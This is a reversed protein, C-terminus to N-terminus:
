IARAHRNEAYNLHADFTAAVPRMLLRGAFTLEFGGPVFNLLGDEEFSHLHELEPAFYNKFDLGLRESMAQYNLAADCMLRMITERRVQDDHTLIYGRSAPLQDARVLAQWDELTRPNQLYTDELQSISSPGFAYIDTQAHTSYGQFNRRLTGDQQAQVLAGKAFHDLGIYSFGQALLSEVVLAFLQLKDDANPMPARELLRQSPMAWPVHAYSYVALREPQWLAVQDLTRKYSEVSQHPLGYILDLNLSTIGELRLWEIVQSTQEVPQVRNIARQVADDVDQVGLSARNVGMRGLAEIHARTVRRPDIEVGYEVTDSFTFYRRLMADLELLALPSLFTPTGGGFHVQVVKRDPHILASTLRLERELDKLFAIGRAEDRTIVKNCGCYWCLSRCFPVHVYLSLPRSADQNNAVIAARPAELPKFQLATPYSTYRPVPKNYLSLLSLPVDHIHTLTM